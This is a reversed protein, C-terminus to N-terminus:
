DDEGFYDSARRLKKAREAAAAAPPPWNELANQAALTRAAQRHLANTCSGLEEGAVDVVVRVGRRQGATSLPTPDYSAPARCVVAVHIQRFMYQIIAPRVAHQAIKDRRM